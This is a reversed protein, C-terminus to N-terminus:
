RYGYRRAVWGTLLWILRRLWRPSNEQWDADTALPQPGRERARNGAVIHGFGFVEGRSARDGLAALDTRAAAGVRDLVTAPDRVLDEYRIRVYPVDRYRSAVAETVLNILIWDMASRLGVAVGSRLRRAPSRRQMRKYMSWAVGRPDRVLHILTMEVAGGQLCALARVPNKASDAVIEGSGVEAIANMLDATWRTYNEFSASHRTSPRMLRPLSRFREFRRQLRFYDSPQQPALDLSWRQLVPGWLPCDQVRHTCACVRPEGSDSWLLMDLEGAAVIGAQSGLLAALITSGSHGVGATYLVRTRLPRL